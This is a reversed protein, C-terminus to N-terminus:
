FDVDSDMERLYSSTLQIAVPSGIRAFELEQRRLALATEAKAKLYASRLPSDLASLQARLADEDLSLIAAIHSVPTLDAALAAVEAILDDNFTM